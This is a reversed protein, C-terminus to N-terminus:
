ATQARQWEHIHALVAERKVDIFETLEVGVTYRHTEPDMRRHAVRGHIVASPSLDQLGAVIVKAELPIERRTEFRFAGDSVDHGELPLTKRFCDGDLSIYVPVRFKRDAESKGVTGM